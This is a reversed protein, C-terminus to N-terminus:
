RILTDYLNNVFYKLSPVSQRFSLFPLEDDNSNAKWEYIINGDRYNILEPSNCTETIDTVTGLKLISQLKISQTLM